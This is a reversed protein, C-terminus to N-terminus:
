PKYHEALLYIYETVPITRANTRPEARNCLTGGMTFYYGSNCGLLDPNFAALKRQQAVTTAVTQVSGLPNRVVRPKALYEDQAALLKKAVKVWPTRRGNAYDGVHHAFVGMLKAIQALEGRKGTLRERFKALMEDREKNRYRGLRLPGKTKRM